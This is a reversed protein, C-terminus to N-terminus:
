ACPSTLSARRCGHGRQPTLLAPRDFRAGGVPTSSVATSSESSASAASRFSANTGVSSSSSLWLPLGAAHQAGCARPDAVRKRTTPSLYSLGRSIALNKLRRKNSDNIADGGFLERLERKVEKYRRDRGNSYPAEAFRLSAYQWMPEKRARGAVALRCHTSWVFCADPAACAVVLKGHALTKAMASEVVFRHRRPGARRGGDGVDPLRRATVGKTWLVEGKPAAAEANAFYHLGVSSLVFYRRRWNSLKLAGRGRSLKWLTGVRLVEAGRARVSAAAATAVGGCAVVTRTPLRPADRTLLAEKGRKRLPASQECLRRTLGVGCARVQRLKRPAADLTTGAAHVHALAAIQPTQRPRAADPPPPSGGDGGEDDGVGATACLRALMAPLATAPVAAHVTPMEHPPRRSIPRAAPRPRACPLVVPAAEHLLRQPTEPLATAAHPQAVAQLARVLGSTLQPTSKALVLSRRGAQLGALRQAGPPYREWHQQLRQQVLADREVRRLSQRRRREM